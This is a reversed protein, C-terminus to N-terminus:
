ERNKETENMQREATKKREIAVPIHRITCLQLFLIAYTAYIAVRSFSSLDVKDYPRGRKKNMERGALWRKNQPYRPSRQFRSSYSLVSASGEGQLQWPRIGSSGSHQVRPEGISKFRDRRGSETPTPGDSSQQRIGASNRTFRRTNYCCCFFFFLCRLLFYLDSALFIDSFSPHRAPILTEAM